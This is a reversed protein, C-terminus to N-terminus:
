REELILYDFLRLCETSSRITKEQKPDFFGHPEEETELGLVVNKEQKPDSSGDVNQHREVNELDTM